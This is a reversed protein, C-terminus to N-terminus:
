LCLLWSLARMTRRYRDADNWWMNFSPPSSLGCRDVKKSIVPCIQSVMNEGTVPLFPPFPLWILVFVGYCVAFINIPLGLAGLKFPGYVIHEGRLKAIIIFLVPMVYSLYLGITSLGLIAFLATSSGVNLLQLLVIVFSVLGLANLPIRLTPHV